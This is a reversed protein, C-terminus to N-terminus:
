GENDAPPQPLAMWHTPTAVNVPRDADTVWFQGLANWRLIEAMKHPELWLLIRTGDKPATDISKWKM